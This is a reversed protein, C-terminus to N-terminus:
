LSIMFHGFIINNFSREFKIGIGSVQDNGIGSVQVLLRTMVSLFNSGSFIRTVKSQWCTLLSTYWVCSDMGMLSSSLCLSSPYSRKEMRSM